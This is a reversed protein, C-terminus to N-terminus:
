EKKIKKLKEIREFQDFEENSDFCFIQGDIKVFGGVPYEELIM